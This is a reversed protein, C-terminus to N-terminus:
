GLSTTLCVCLYLIHARRNKAGLQSRPRDIVVDVGSASGRIQNRNLRPQSCFVGDRGIKNGRSIIQRFVVNHARKCPTVYRRVVTCYMRAQVHDIDHETAVSSSYLLLVTFGGKVSAKLCRVDRFLQYNQLVLVNKGGMQM